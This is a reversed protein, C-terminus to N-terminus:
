YKKKTISIIKNVSDFGLYIDRSLPSCIVTIYNEKQNYLRLISTSLIADGLRSNGIFLIKM